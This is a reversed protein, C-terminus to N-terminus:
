LALWIMREMKCIFFSLDMVKGIDCLATFPLALIWGRLKTGSDLSRIIRSFVSDNKPLLFNLTLSVPLYKPHFLPLDAPHLLSPHTDLPGGGGGPVSYYQFLVVSFKSLVSHPKTWCLPMHSASIGFNQMMPCWFSSKQKSFIILQNNFWIMNMSTNKKLKTHISFFRVKIHNLIGTIQIPYVPKLIYGM